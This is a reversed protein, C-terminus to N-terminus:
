RSRRSRRPTDTAVTSTPRRLRSNGTETEQEIRSSVSVTDAIMRDLVLNVLDRVTEERARVHKGPVWVIEKPHSAHAYLAEVSARPLQEDELANIMVFPRPSIRDVWNEPALRPGAIIVTSLGAAVVRLPAFRIKARMNHELPVYSGGSGHIAWIRSFRPDMAGAICVFPVGLSVGAAEVRSADVYPLRSMYDLALMLAPPTDLMAARIAPVHELIQVLGKLRHEGAYPYSLAAVVAGRTDPILKIADRGTRHGGLLVVGPRRQEDREASPARGAAAGDTGAPRKVAIDVTLGSAAVLRATHVLHGDVLEASSETWSTLHSRRELFRPTPDRVLYLAGLVCGVVCAVLAAAVIHRARPHRSRM